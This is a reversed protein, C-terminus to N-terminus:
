TQSLHRFRFSRFAVRTLRYLRHLSAPDSRRPDLARDRGPCLDAIELVGDPVTRIRHHEASLRPPCESGAGFQPILTESLDQCAALPLYGQSDAAPCCILLGQGELTRGFGLFLLMFLCARRGRLIVCIM